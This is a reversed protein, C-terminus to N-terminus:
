LNGFVENGVQIPVGFFGGVPPHGPAFGRSGSPPAAPADPDPSPTLLDLLDQGHPLHNIRAVLDEDMGAHVLQQLRGDRGLVVIVAYRARLLDRAADVIHRLLAPLSLDAAVAANARLLGRLRGQTALVDDARNRLQELLQDLELRPIDPFQLGEVSGHDRDPLMAGTASPMNPATMPPSHTTETVTVAQFGVVTRTAIRDAVPRRTELWPWAPGATTVTKTPQRSLERRVGQQVTL